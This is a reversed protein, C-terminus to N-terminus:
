SQQQGHIGSFNVPWRFSETGNSIYKKMVTLLKSM